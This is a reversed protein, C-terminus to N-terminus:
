FALCVKCRPLNKNLAFGRLRLSELSTTQGSGRSNTPPKM